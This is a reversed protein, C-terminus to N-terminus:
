NLDRQGREVKSLKTGLGFKERAGKAWTGGVWANIVLNYLPAVNDCHLLADTCCHMQAVTYRHMQAVTCRHLRSPM